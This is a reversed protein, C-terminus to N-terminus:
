SISLVVVIVSAMAASIIRILLRNNANEPKAIDERLPSTDKWCNPKLSNGASTAINM